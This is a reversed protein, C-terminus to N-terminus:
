SIRKQITFIISLCVLIRSFCVKVFTTPPNREGFCPFVGYLCLSIYRSSISQSAMSVDIRFGDKGPGFQYAPCGFFWRGMKYGRFCVYSCVCVCVCVCM